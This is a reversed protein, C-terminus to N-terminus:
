NGDKVGAIEMLMSRAAQTFLDVDLVQETVTNVALASDDLKVSSLTSIAIRAKLCEALVDADLSWGALRSVEVLVEDLKRIYNQIFPDNKYLSYIGQRTDEQIAEPKGESRVYESAIEGYRDRGFKAWSINMWHNHFDAIVKNSLTLLAKVARKRSHSEMYQNVIIIGLAVALLNGALGIFLSNFEPQVIEFSLGFFITAVVIIFLALWLKTFRKM